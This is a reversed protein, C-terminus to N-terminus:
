SIAASNPDVAAMTLFHIPSLHIGLGVAVSGVCGTSRTEGTSSRLPDIAEDGGPVVDGAALAEGLV